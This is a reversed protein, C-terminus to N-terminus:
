AKKGNTSISCPITPRRKWGPTFDKDFAAASEHLNDQIAEATTRREAYSHVMGLLADDGWRQAIYDCIQGAQYYSVLVQTPYEPRVFGRDLDLVPLLKKKQLRVIIEPTLRDAWDPSAAGEEHM